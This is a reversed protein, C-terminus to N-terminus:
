NVTFANHLQYSQGDPNAVTMFTLGATVNPVTCSLTESDVFSCSTSQGGIQVTTGSVFGSGNLQITTGVSAQSPSITGIALPVVSLKFYSVGSQTAILVQQGASDIALPRYPGTNAAFDLLLLVRGNHTDSITVTGSGTSAYLLSGTENLRSDLGSAQTIPLLPLLRQDLTGAGLAMVSGDRNVTAHGIVWPLDAVLTPGQFVDSGTDYRWIYEPGPPETENNGAYLVVSGDSSSGGLEPYPVLAPCTTAADPRPQVTLNTLDIERVPDPICPSLSVFARSNAATVLSMPAALTTPPDSPLMVSVTTSTGAALNFIVILKDSPDAALLTNSDPTLAESELTAGASVATSQLQGVINQTVPDFVSVASGNETLYFKNRVSDYVAFGFPGGALSGQAALYQVGRSLTDTGTPTTITIDAWGPVGPPAPFSIAQEPYSASANSNLIAKKMDVSAGGVTITTNGDLKPNFGFGYGILTVEDGGSSSVTNPIARLLRAGYTYADPLFVPNNNSDTLVVSVSGKAGAKPATATLFNEGNSSAPYPGVVDQTAPATGFYAEMSDSIGDASGSGLPAPIFQVQTGGQLPGVNPNAETSPGIFEPTNLPPPIPDLEFANVIVAGGPSIGGFLHNSEDADFLTLLSFLSGVNVGLYGSPQGTQANIAYILSQDMVYLDNGDKSYIPASLLTAPITFTGGQQVLTSSWFAVQSNFNGPAPIESISAFQSGNPNAAVLTSLGPLPNSTAVYAQASISYLFLEQSADKLGVVILFKGDGSRAPNALLGSASPDESTFSQNAPIYRLLHTVQVTAASSSESNVGMGIFISGDAMVFPMVPLTTNGAADSGLQTSQITIQGTVQLTSPDIIYMYPTITGVVLEKYDPSFSLGAPGPVGIEAVYHGDVTSYVEVANMDPNSFFVEKTASDYAASPIPAGTGQNPLRFVFDGPFARPQFPPPPPPPPPPGGTPGMSSNSGGCGAVILIAALCCLRVAQKVLIRLSLM